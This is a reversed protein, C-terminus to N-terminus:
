LSPELSHLRTRENERKDAGSPQATRQPLAAPSHAAAAARGGGTGRRTQTRMAVSRSWPRTRSSRRRWRGCSHPPSLACNNPVALRAACAAACGAAQPAPNVAGVGRLGQVRAEHEISVHGHTDEEERRDEEPEPQALHLNLLPLLMLGDTFLSARKLGSLARSQFLPPMRAAPVSHCLRM